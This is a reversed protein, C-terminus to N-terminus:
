PQERSGGKGGRRNNLANDIQTMAQAFGMRWLVNASAGLWALTFPRQDWYWDYRPNSPFTHGNVDTGIAAVMGTKRELPEGSIVNIITGYGGFDNPILMGGSYDQATAHGADRRWRIAGNNAHAASAIQTLTRYATSTPSLRVTREANPQGGAITDWAGALWDRVVSPNANGEPTCREWITDGFIGSAIEEYEDPWELFRNVLAIQQRPPVPLLDLQERLPVTDVQEIQFLCRAGYQDFGPKWEPM